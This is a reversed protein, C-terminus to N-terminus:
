KIGFLREFNGNLIKENASATLGLAFFRSLEEKPTWMPFDTGFMFRDEGFRAIFEGAEEGELTYLSSSTDFYLNKHKPYSKAEDWESWGGFHAGICILDPFKEIVRMLRRPGSFDYRKDGTHFLVPLKKKELLKYTPFMKEDDICFRQFDSHLKIGRLGMKEIREIEAAPDDMDPHLTALGVFQPYKGCKESIFDNISEVQHPTTAPSCILARDIGADSLCEALVHATGEHNMEIDYFEGTARTAKEAIKQPFIHTHADTIKM